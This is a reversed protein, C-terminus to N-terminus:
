QEFSFCKPKGIVRGDAPIVDGSKFCIIDGPVLEDAEVVKWEGNRKVKGILASSNMIKRIAYATNRQRVFGIISNSLILLLIGIFVQWDPPKGGGNSVIIVILASLIMVWSFPNWM